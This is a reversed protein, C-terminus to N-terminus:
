KLAAFMLMLSDQTHLWKDTMGTVVETVGLEITTDLFEGCASSKLKM